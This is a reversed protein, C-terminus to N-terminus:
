GSRFPRVGGQRTALHDADHQRRDPEWGHAIDWKEGDLPSRWPCSVFPWACPDLFVLGVECVERVAQRLAAALDEERAFGEHNTRDARMQQDIAPNQVCRHVRFAIPSHARGIM